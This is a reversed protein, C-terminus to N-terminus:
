KKLWKGNVMIYHGSVTKEITKKGAMTEVDALQLNNNRALNQYEAKRAANILRAIEDANGQNNIVGLYGDPREGLQGTNKAQALGQMASNLDLAWAPTASLCAGLACTAIFTRLSM